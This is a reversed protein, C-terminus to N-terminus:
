EQHFHKALERIIPNVELHKQVQKKKKEKKTVVYDIRYVINLEAKLNHKVTKDSTYTVKTDDM